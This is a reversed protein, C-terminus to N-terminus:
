REVAYHDLGVTIPPHGLSSDNGRIAMADVVVDVPCCPLPFFSMVEEM